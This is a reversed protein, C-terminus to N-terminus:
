KEDKEQRIWYAHGHSVKRLYSGEAIKSRIKHLTKKLCGQPDYLVEGDLSTELWISGFLDGQPLHVFQPSYKEVDRFNRDWELYLSRSLSRTEAFVILLDVDSQSTAEGRATSGFLIIGLPKWEQVIKAVVSQWPSSEGGHLRRLCITNLSEGRARAESKLLQHFKPDLRLVFKGSLVSMFVESLLRGGRLVRYM